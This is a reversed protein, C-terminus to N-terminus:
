FNAATNSNGHTYEYTFQSVVFAGVGGVRKSDKVVQQVAKVAEELQWLGGSRTDVGIEVV